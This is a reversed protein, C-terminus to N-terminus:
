TVTTTQSRSLRIMVRAQEDSQDRDWNLLSEWAQEADAKKQSILTSDKSRREMALCYQACEVIVGQAEEPLSTLEDSTDAIAGLRAFYEVSLTNSTAQSAGPAPYLKILGDSFSNRLSYFVPLGGETQIPYQHAFWADDVYRLDQVPKSNTDLIRAFSPKNYASPLSYTSTGSVLTIASATTKTFKLLRRNMRQRVRNICDLAQARINTDDEGGIIRAVQSVLRNGSGGTTQGSGTVPSVLDGM